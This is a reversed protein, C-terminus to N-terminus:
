NSLTSVLHGYISATPTGDDGNGINWADPDEIAAQTAQIAEMKVILDYTANTYEGGLDKDYILKELLKPTTANPALPETYYFWGDDSNYVWNNLDLTDTTTIADSYGIRIHNQKVPNVSLGKLDAQVGKNENAATPILDADTAPTTAPLASIGLDDKTYYYKNEGQTGTTGLMAYGTVDTQGKPALSSKAWNVAENKYGGAYYAYTLKDVSFTWDAASESKNDAGRATVAVEGDMKQFKGTEYEHVIIPTYETTIEGNAAIKQGGTVFLKTNGELGTVQAAPVETYGNNTSIKEPSYAVPVHSTLTSTATPDFKAGPVSSPSLTEEGKSALYKLVEEYSVRVFVNSTGTNQVTVQKTSETGPLMPTPKWVEHVVVSDDAVVSSQVRNLKQQQSTIWAFTGSIVAVLALLAAIALLKKKRREKM